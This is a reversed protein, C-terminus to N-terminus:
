GSPRGKRVTWLWTLVLILGVLVGAAFIPQYAKLKDAVGERDDAIAGGADGAAPPQVDGTRPPPITMRELRVSTGLTVIATEQLTIEQGRADPPSVTFTVKSGNTGCAPPQSPGGLVLAPDPAGAAAAARTGDVRVSDCLVGNAYARVTGFQDAFDTASGSTPQRVPGHLLSNPLVVEFRDPQPAAGVTVAPVLLSVATLLSLISIRLSRNM